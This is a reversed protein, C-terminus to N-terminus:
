AANRSSGSAQASSASPEASARSGHPLPRREGREREEGDHRPREDRRVGVVVGVVVEDPAAVQQAADGGAELVGERRRRMREVEREPRQQREGALVGVPQEHEDGHEAEDRQDAAGVREGAREEARGGGGGAREEDARAEREQQVGHAGEDVDREEREDDPGRRELDPLRAAPERRQRQERRRPQQSWLGPHEGPQVPQPANRAAVGTRARPQEREREGRRQQPTEDVERDRAVREEAQVFM